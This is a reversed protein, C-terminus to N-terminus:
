GWSQNEPSYGVSFDKNFDLKSNKELIPVYIEETVGPYVTSEYIIIDNKKIIKSLNKTAKKLPKLDPTKDNNIPTPVTVIFINCGKLSKIDECLVFNEKLANKLTESDIEKTRDFFSKLENIRIKSIDFGITKYKKSFSIALPLGVYGLGIVGIKIM